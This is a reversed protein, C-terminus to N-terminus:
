ISIFLLESKLDSFQINIRNIQLKYIQMPRLVAFTNNAQLEITNSTVALNTKNHKFQLTVAGPLIPLVRTVESIRNDQLNFQFSELEINNDKGRIDSRIGTLDFAARNQFSSGSIFKYDM